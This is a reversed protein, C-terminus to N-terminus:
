PVVVVADVTGIRLSNSQADLLLTAAAGAEDYTVLHLRTVGKALTKFHFVAAVGVTQETVDGVRVCGFTATGDPTILTPPCFANNTPDPILNGIETNTEAQVVAPDFQINIGYGKWPPVDGALLVTVAFEGSATAPASIVFTAPASPAPQPTNSPVITPLPPANVTPSPAVTPAGAPAATATPEGGIPTSPAFQPPIPPVAVPTGQATLVTAGASPTGSAPATRAPSPSAVVSQDPRPSALTTAAGPTGPSATATASKKSSGGCAVAAAALVTLGCVAAFIVSRQM